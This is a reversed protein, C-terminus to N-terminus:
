RYQLYMKITGYCDLLAITNKLMYFSTNGQKFVFIAAKM